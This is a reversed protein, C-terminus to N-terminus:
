KIESVSTKKDKALDRDTENKDKMDLKGIIKDLFKTQM